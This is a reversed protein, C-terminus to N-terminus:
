HYTRTIFEKSYTQADSMCICRWWNHTEKQVRRLPEPKLKNTEKVQYANNGYSGSGRIWIDLFCPTEGLFMFHSQVHFLMFNRLGHQSMLCKKSLRNRAHSQLNMTTWTKWHCRAHNTNIEEVLWRGRHPSRKKRWRSAWRELLEPGTRNWHWALISPWKYKMNHYWVERCRLSCSRPWNFKLVLLNLWWFFHFLNKWQLYIRIGWVSKNNRPM